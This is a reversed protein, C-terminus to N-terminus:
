RVLRPNFINRLQDGILNISLILAVLAAGPYVSMWYRGSQMYTFGRCILGGLSPKTLPVGIGLFSLTAEMIIGDSICITAVVILSPLVNPLLHHFMIRHLPLPVAQVAEVYEKKSEALATGHVTRAFYAYQSVILATIVQVEGQGLAAVLVLALMLPPFSLQMDVVRMIFNECRGGVFGALLGLFAGVALAAVGSFIGIVMSIRLGYVIASYLDRGDADTGFIHVYGQSGVTWPPLRADHLNLDAQSFPNQPTLWPAFVALFACFLLIFLALCAFKSRRYDRWMHRLGSYKLTTVARTM